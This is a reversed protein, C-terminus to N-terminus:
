LIYLLDVFSVYLPHRKFLETCGNYTLRYEKQKYFKYYMLIPVITNQGWIRKEPGSGSISDLDISRGWQNELLWNIPNNM